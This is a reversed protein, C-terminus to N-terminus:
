YSWKVGMERELITMKIACSCDLCYILLISHAWNGRFGLGLIPKFPRMFSLFLFDFAKQYAKHLNKDLINLIRRLNCATYITGVDSSAHQISRKTMIYYYDWQRKIVGFPHEVIAQRWRYLDPNVLLRIKNADILDMHESRKILRGKKSTTCRSFLPIIMCAKTKYHKVRNM